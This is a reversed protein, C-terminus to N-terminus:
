GKTNNIKDILHNVSKATFKRIKKLTYRSRFNDVKGNCNIHFSRYRSNQLIKNAWDEPKDESITLMISVRDKGGLASVYATIYPYKLEEKLKKAVEFSGEYDFLCKSEM